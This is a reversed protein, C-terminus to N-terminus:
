ELSVIVNGMTMVTLHNPDLLTATVPFVDKLFFLVMRKHCVSMVSADLWMINANVSEQTFIVPLPNQGMLTVTAHNVAGQGLLMELIDM